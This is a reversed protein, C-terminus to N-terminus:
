NKPRTARPACRGITTLSERSRETPRYTHADRLGTCQPFFPPDSGSGTQCWLDPPDLFSAPIPTQCFTWPFPYKQPRIKAAGNYGILVKRRVHSVIGWGDSSRNPTTRATPRPMATNCPLGRLALPLPPKPPKTGWKWLPLHWQMASPSINGIQIRFSSIETRCFYRQFVWNTPKRTICERELDVDPNILFECFSRNNRWFEPRRQLM